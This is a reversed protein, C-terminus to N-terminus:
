PLPTTILNSSIITRLVRNLQVTSKRKDAVKPSLVSSSTSSFFPQVLQNNFLSNESCSIYKWTIKIYYLQYVQDALSLILPLQGSHFNLLYYVFSDVHHSIAARPCRTHVMTWGWTAPRVLRQPGRMCSWGKLWKPACFKINLIWCNPYIKSWNTSIM